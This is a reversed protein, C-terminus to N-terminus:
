QVCDSVSTAAYTCCCANKKHTNKLSVSRKDFGTTNGNCLTFQWWKSDGRNAESKIVLVSQCRLGTGNFQVRSLHTELYLSQKM